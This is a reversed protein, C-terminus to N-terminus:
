VVSRHDRLRPQNRRNAWCSPPRATSRPRFSSRGSWRSRTAREPSPSISASAPSCRPIRSQGNRMSNWSAVASPKGAKKLIHVVDFAACAGTGMLVTEMPRPGLNRGGADPPGDMLLSHGSETEGLFSANEVWKICAKMGIREPNVGGRLPAVIGCSASSRTCSVGAVLGDAGPIFALLTTRYRTTFGTPAAIVKFGSREFAMQARKMHWAHTVLYITDVGARRLMERSYRANEVTNGSGGRAMAGSRPFGGVPCDANAASGSVANGPARRRQCSRSDRRATTRIPRTACDNWRGASVTDHAYEPAKFYTGGGLVVIAGAQGKPFGTLASSPELSKLAAELFVARIGRLVARVDVPDIVKWM